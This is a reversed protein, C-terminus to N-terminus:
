NRPSYVDKRHGLTVVVVLLVVDRITYIIEDKDRSLEQASLPTISVSPAILLLFALSLRLTM